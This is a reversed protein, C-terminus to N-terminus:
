FIVLSGLSLTIAHVASSMTALNYAINGRCGFNSTIHWEIGSAAEIDFSYDSKRILRDGIWRHIGAGFNCVLGLRDCPLDFSGAMGIIGGVSSLAYPTPSSITKITTSSARATASFGWHESFPLQLRLDSGFGSCFTLGAPSNLWYIAQTSISLTPKFEYFASSKWPSPSNFIKRSVFYALETSIIGTTAGAIVDSGWHRGSSIRQIGIVSASAQAALSWWPSYSHLENSLVTSATFAWSTHRSPFSNNGSRDPRLEHISHKFIETVAANIAVSGISSTLAPALRFHTSDANEIAPAKSAVLLICALIIRFRM